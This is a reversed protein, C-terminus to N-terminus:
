SAQHVPIAKPETKSEKKASRALIVIPAAILAIIPSGLLLLFIGALAVLLLVGAVTLVISLVSGLFPLVVTIIFVLVAIAMLVAGGIFLFKVFASEIEKGDFIIRFGKKNGNVTASLTTEGQNVQKEEM